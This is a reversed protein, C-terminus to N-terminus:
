QLDHSRERMFAHTHTHTYSNETTATAKCKVSLAAIHWVLRIHRALLVARNLVVCLNIPLWRNIPYSGTVAYLLGHKGNWKIVHIRVAPACHRKVGIIYALRRLMRIPWSNKIASQYYNEMQCKYRDLLGNPRPAGVRVWGCRDAVTKCRLMHNFFSSVTVLWHARHLRPVASLPLRTHRRSITANLEDARRFVLGLVQCSMSIKGVLKFEIRMVVWDRIIGHQSVHGPEHVRVCPACWLLAASSRIPLNSLCCFSSDPRRSFVVLDVLNWM